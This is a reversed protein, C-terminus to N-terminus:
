LGRTAGGDVLLSTGTVYAAQQSCLFAVVAGVEEAKAMRKMPIEREQLRMAEAESIGLQEARVRALHVQRDTLTHGPLVANVTIGKDAYELAQLKTTAALGARLTSSIPLLASPEKAVLSTVHVIRGWGRSAMGPATLRALRIVNMLTSEFGARWQEDTMSSLTGAPPGGTNTVVIDPEGLEKGTEAVWRELDEANAVDCVYGKLRPVSATASGLNGRDRSCISVNCGEEALVRAVALGIGKSGAAVMAVKGAIGLEM